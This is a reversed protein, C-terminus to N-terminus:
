NSTLKSILKTSLINNYLIKKDVRGIEKKLNIYKSWKSINKGLNTSLDAIIQKRNRM